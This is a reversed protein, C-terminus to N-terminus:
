FKGRQPKSQIPVPESLRSPKWSEEWLNIARFIEADQHKAWLRVAATATVAASQERSLPRVVRIYDMPYVRLYFGVGEKFMEPPLVM